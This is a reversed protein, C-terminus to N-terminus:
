RIFVRMHCDVRQRTAIGRLAGLAVRTCSSRHCRRNGNLSGADRCRGHKGLSEAIKAITTYNIACRDTRRAGRTRIGALDYVTAAVAYHSPAQVPCTVISNKKTILPVNKDRARIEIACRPGFRFSDSSSCAM